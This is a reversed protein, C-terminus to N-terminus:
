WMKFGEFTATLLPRHRVAERCARWSSASPCVPKNHSPTAAVVFPILLRAFTVSMCSANRSGLVDANNLSCLRSTKRPPRSTASKAEYKLTVAAHTLTLRRLTHPAVPVLGCLVLIHCKGYRWGAFLLLFSQRNLTHRTFIGIHKINCFCM